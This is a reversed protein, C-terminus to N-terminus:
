LLDALHADQFLDIGTISKLAYIAVLGGFGLVCSAGITMGAIIMKDWLAHVMQSEQCEGLPKARRYAGAQMWGDPMPDGTPEDAVDGLGRGANSLNEVLELEHFPSIGTVIRHSHVAPAACRGHHGDSAIVVDHGRGRRRAPLQDHREQEHEVIVIRAM